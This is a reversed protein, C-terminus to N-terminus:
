KNKKRENTREGGKKMEKMIKKRFQDKREKLRVTKSENKTVNKQVWCRSTHDNITKPYTSVSKTYYYCYFACEFFLWIEKENWRVDEGGGGEIGWKKM